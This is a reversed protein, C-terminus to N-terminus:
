KFSLNGYATFYPVSAPKPTAGLRITRTLGGVDLVANIDLADSGPLQARLSAPIRFGFIGDSENYPEFTKGQSADTGRETVVLTLGGVEATGTNVAVELDTDGDAHFRLGALRVTAAALIERDKKNLRAMELAEKWQTFIKESSYQRATEFARASMGTCMSDDDLLRAVATAAAAQDGFPILFGNSGDEIVDRPGFDVDYAVPVCGHAQAELIALSQGEFRSCLLLGRARSLYLPVDHVHGHFNVLHGIGLQNVQEQLVPRQDGDGILELRVPTNAAAVANVIDIVAGINKGKTFRGVHVVTGPERDEFAPLVAPGDVPNSIVVTNSGDGFRQVFATRQSETLFTIGDWAERNDLIKRHAPSLKGTLTDQGAAVHTSHFNVFKLATPHQWAFLFGASFKSDIIVDANSLNVLETLWHRYLRAASTFEYQVRGGAALLQLTRVAEGPDHPSPIMADVLYVSGDRRHYEHKSLKDNGPFTFDVCFLSGDVSRELRSGETWPIGAGRLKLERGGAAAPFQEAYYEHLNLLPVDPHLKGNDTIASRIADFEPNADFTVVASPVGGEHFLGARKLCMATMGGFGLEVAWTVMLAARPARHTQAPQSVVHGSSGSAEHTPM